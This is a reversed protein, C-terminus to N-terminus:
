GNKMSYINEVGLLKKYTWPADIQMLIASISTFQHLYIQCSQAALM